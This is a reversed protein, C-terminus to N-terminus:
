IYIYIYIYIRIHSIPVIVSDISYNIYSYLSSLFLLFLLALDVFKENIESFNHRKLITKLFRNCIKEIKIIRFGRFINMYPNIYSYNNPLIYDIFPILFTILYMFYHTKKPILKLMLGFILFFTVIIEFIMPFSFVFQIKLQLYFFFILFCFFDISFSIITSLKSIQKFYHKLCNNNIKSNKSFYTLFKERLLAKLFELCKRKKQMPKKSLPLPMRVVNNFPSLFLNEIKKGEFERVLSVNKGKLITQNRQIQENTLSLNENLITKM